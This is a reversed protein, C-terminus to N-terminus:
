NIIENINDIMDDFYYEIQELYKETIQALLRHKGNLARKKIHKLNLDLRKKYEPIRELIMAKEHPAKFRSQERLNKIKTDQWITNKFLEIRTM